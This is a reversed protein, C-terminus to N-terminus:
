NSSSGFSPKPESASAKYSKSLWAGRDDGGMNQVQHNIASDVKALVSKDLYSVLNM